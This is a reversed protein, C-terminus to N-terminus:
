EEVIFVRHWASHHAKCLWMVELPKNYDFHHAESLIEKCVECPKSRIKGLRLANAVMYRAKYRKPHRTKYRRRSEKVQDLNEKAWKVARDKYAQKNTLYNKQAQRKFYSKREQYRRKDYEKKKEKNAENYAKVKDRNRRAWERKYKRREKLTQGM